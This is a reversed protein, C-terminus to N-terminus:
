DYRIKGGDPDYTVTAKTSEPPSVYFFEKQGLNRIQLNASGLNTNAADVVIIQVDIIENKASTIAIKGSDKGKSIVVQKTTKPDNALGWEVQVAVASKIKGDTTLYPYEWFVKKDTIDINILLNAPRDGAPAAFGPTQTLALTVLAIIIPLLKRSLTIM